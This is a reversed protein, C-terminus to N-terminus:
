KKVTGGNDKICLQWYGCQRQSCLFSSRNTDPRITGKRLLEMIGFQATVKSKFYEADEPTLPPLEIQIIKPTNLKVAYDLRRKEAQDAGETYKKAITYFDMALKHAQDIQDPDSSPTKGTTKHDRISGDEEEVDSIGKMSWDMGDFVVHYIKQVAVPHITEPIRDEIYARVLGVITDKTEAPSDGFWETEDERIHFSTDAIDLFEQASLDAKSTIKQQYNNTLVDDYVSGATLHKTPPISIKPDVYRYYWSQMCRSFMNLQSPSLHIDPINDKDTLFIGNKTKVQSNEM